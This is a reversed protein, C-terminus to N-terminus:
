LLMASFSPVRLGGWASPINYGYPVEPNINMGGTYISTCTFADGNELNFFQWSWGDYPTADDIFPIPHSNEDHNKLSRMMLQHGIWGTSGATVTYKEGGVAVTGTAILQPWNYYLGPTPLPTIGTGGNNKPIGELFLANEVAIDDKCNFSLDIKMNDGDDISANMPLVNTSGSLVDRGCQLLFKEDPKGAKSYKISGGKLPWQINEKRRFIEDKKSQNEFVVTAKSTFILADDDTWNANKQATEGVVRHKELIIFVGMRRHNGKSDTVNLNCAIFYWEKGMQPHIHHDGPFRLNYDATPTEMDYSSARGLLSQIVRVYNAPCGTQDLQGAAEYLSDYDPIQVPQATAPDVFEAVREKIVGLYSQLTKSASQKTAMDNNRGM